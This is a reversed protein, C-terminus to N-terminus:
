RSSNANKVELILNLLKEFLKKGSPNLVYPKQNIYSELIEKSYPIELIIEVNYKKCVEKILNKNGLNSKNLIVYTKLNLYKTIDLIRKLDRKGFPTPETVAFVLDLDELAKFVLNGAGAGTDFIINKFHNLAYKKTKLLLKFGKEEGEKLKGTVLPFGYKTKKNIYIDGIYKKDELIANFKCVFLCAKCGSCLEKFVYPKEKKFYIAGDQCVKQCAKCSTCKELDFKPLFTYEEIKEGLDENLLIYDNPAEVDLDVLAFNKLLIALNTSVFSKGTGGKGGTIGIKM